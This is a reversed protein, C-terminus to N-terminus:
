LYTYMYKIITENYNRVNRIMIYEKHGKVILISCVDDVFLNNIVYANFIKMM